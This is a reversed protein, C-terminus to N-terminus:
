ERLRFSGYEWNTYDDGEITVRFSWRGPEWPTGETSVFVIFDNEDARYDMDVRPVDPTARVSPDSAPNREPKWLEVYVASPPPDLVEGTDPDNAVARIRVAEGVYLAM